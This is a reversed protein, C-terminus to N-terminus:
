VLDNASLVTLILGVIFCGLSAKGFVVLYEHFYKDFLVENIVALVFVVMMALISGGVLFASYRESKSYDAGDSHLGSLKKISSILADKM